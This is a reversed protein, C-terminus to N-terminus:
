SRTMAPEALGLPKPQARQVVVDMFGYDWDANLSRRLQSPSPEPGLPVHHRTDIVAGLVDSWFMPTLFESGIPICSGADLGAPARDGFDYLSEEFAHGTRGFYPAEGVTGSSLAYVDSVGEQSLLYYFNDNVVRIAGFSEIVRRSPCRHDQYPHPKFLVLPHRDCLEFIADTHDALSM